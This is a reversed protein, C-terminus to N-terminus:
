SLEPAIYQLRKAAIRLERFDIAKSAVASGIIYRLSSLQIKM